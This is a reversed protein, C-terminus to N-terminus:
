TVGHENLEDNDLLLLKDESKINHPRSVRPSDDELPEFGKNILKSRHYNDGNEEDEEEEETFVLQSSNGSSPDVTNLEEESDSTIRTRTLRSGREEEGESDMSLSQFQTMMHADKYKWSKKPTYEFRRNGRGATRSQNGGGWGFCQGDSYDRGGLLPM